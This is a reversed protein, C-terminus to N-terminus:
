NILAIFIIAESYVISVYTYVKIYLNENILYVNKIHKFNFQKM